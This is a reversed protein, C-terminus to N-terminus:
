GTPTITGPKNRPPQLAQQAQDGALWKALERRRQEEPKHEQAMIAQAVLDGPFLVRAAEVIAAAEDDEKGPQPQPGSDLMGRLIDASDGLGAGRLSEPTIGVALSMRAITDPTGPNYGREINGWHRISVDAEKAAEPISMGAAKRAGRILRGQPTLPTVTAPM